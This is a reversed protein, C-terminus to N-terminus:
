VSRDDDAVGHPDVEPAGEDGPAEARRGVEEGTGVDEVFTGGAVAEEDGALSEARHGGGDTGRKGGRRGPVGALHTMPM